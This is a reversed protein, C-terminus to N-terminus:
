IELFDRWHSGCQYIRVSQCMLLCLLALRHKKSIILVFSFVAKGNCDDPIRHWTRLYKCCEILFEKLM